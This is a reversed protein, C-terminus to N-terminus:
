LSSPQNRLTRTASVFAAAAGAVALLVSFWLPQRDSDVFASIVGMVAIALGLYRPMAPAASIAVALQGGVFAAVLAFALLSAFYAPPLHEGAAPAPGLPPFIIFFLIGQALRVSGAAAIYGAIVGLIQRVMGASLMAAAPCGIFSEETLV